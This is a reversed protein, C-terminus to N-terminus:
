THSITIIGDESESAANAETRSTLFDLLRPSGGIMKDGHMIYHVIYSEQRITTIQSSKSQFSGTIGFPLANAMGPEPWWITGVWGRETEDTGMNTNRTAVDVTNQPTNNTRREINRSFRSDRHCM